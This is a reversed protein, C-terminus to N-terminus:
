KHCWGMVDQKKCWDILWFAFDVLGISATVSLVTFIIFIHPDLANKFTIAGDTGYVPDQVVVLALITAVAVISPFIVLAKKHSIHIFKGSGM